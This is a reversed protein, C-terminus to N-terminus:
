RGAGHCLYKGIQHLVPIRTLTQGKLDFGKHKFVFVETGTEEGFVAASKMRKEILDCVLLKEKGIGDKLRAVQGDSVGPERATDLPIDSVDTVAGGGAVVDKAGDKPVALTVFKDSDVFKFAEFADKPLDIEM